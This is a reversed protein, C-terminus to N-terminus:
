LGEDRCARLELVAKPMVQLPNQHRNEITKSLKRGLDASSLAALLPRSTTLILRDLEQVQLFLHLAAVGPSSPELGGTFVRPVPLTQHMELLLEQLRLHGPPRLGLVAGLPATHM